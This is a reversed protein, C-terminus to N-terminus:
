KKPEKLQIHIFNKDPYHIYKISDQFVKLQSILAPIDSCTVDVAAGLMHYSNAVGGVKINHPKNRYFSTIYIPIDFSVLRIADLIWLLRSMNYSISDNSLIDILEDKNNQAYIESSQFYNYKNFNAMFYPTLFEGRKVVSLYILIIFESYFYFVFM